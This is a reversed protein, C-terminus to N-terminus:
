RHLTRGSFPGHGACNDGDLGEAIDKAEVRVTMDPIDDLIGKM